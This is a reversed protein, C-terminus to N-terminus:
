DFMSRKSVKLRNNFTNFWLLLKINNTKEERSVFFNLFCLIAVDVQRLFDYITNFYQNLTDLPVTM